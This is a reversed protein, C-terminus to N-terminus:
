TELEQEKTIIDNTLFLENYVLKRWEFKLKKNM